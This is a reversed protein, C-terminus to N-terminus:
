WRTAADRYRARSRCARARRRPRARPASRRPWRGRRPGRGSVAARSGRLLRRVGDRQGVADAVDHLEVRALRHVEDLQARSGLAVGRVAPHGLLHVPGDGLDGPVPRQGLGHGEDVVSDVSRSRRSDSRRASRRRGSFDAVCQGPVVRTRGPPPVKASRSSGVGSKGLTRRLGSAGSSAASPPLASAALPPHATLPPPQGQPDLLSRTAQRAVGPRRSPALSGLARGGSGESGVGGFGAPLEM